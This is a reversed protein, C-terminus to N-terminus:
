VKGYEKQFREHQPFLAQRAHFSLYHNNDIRGDIVPFFEEQGCIECRELVGEPWQGVIQFRHLWADVCESNGWFSDEKKQYSDTHRM